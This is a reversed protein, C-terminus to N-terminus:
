VIGEQLQLTKSHLKAIAKCGQKYVASCVLLTHLVSLTYFFFIHKEGQLKGKFVVHELREKVGDLGLEQVGDVCQAAPDRLDEELLYLLGHPLHKLGFNHSVDTVDLSQPRLKAESPM